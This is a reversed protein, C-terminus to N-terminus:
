WELTGRSIQLGDHFRFNPQYHCRSRRGDSHELEIEGEGTIGGPEFAVIRVREHSSLRESYLSTVTGKPVM